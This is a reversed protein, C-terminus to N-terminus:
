AILRRRSAMTEILKKYGRRRTSPHIRTRVSFDSLRRAALEPSAVTLSAIETMAITKTKSIPKDRLAFRHLRAPV